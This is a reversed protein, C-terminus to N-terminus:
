LGSSFNFRKDYNDKKLIVKKTPLEFAQPIINCVASKVGFQDLFYYIFLYIFVGEMFSQPAAQTQVDLSWLFEFSNINVHCSLDRCYIELCLASLRSASSELIDLLKKSIHLAAHLWGSPCTHLCGTWKSRDAWMLVTENSSSNVLCVSKPFVSSIM